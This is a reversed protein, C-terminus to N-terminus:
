DQPGKPNPFEKRLKQYAKILKDIANEGIWPRSGHASKGKATLKFHIVGKESTIIKFNNGGDPVFAVKCSYKKTRLLYGVGNLGGIEEDTTLMLGLSPKIKMSALNKMLVMMVSDAGKMDKSGRGYLRNGKVQPIFQEKEGEVVDLHGVLFIEPKQTKEFTVVLSLKKNSELKKTIFERGAFYTKCFNIIKYLAATNAKVSPVKILKKTLNVIEQKM